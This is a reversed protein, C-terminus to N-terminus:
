TPTRQDTRGFGIREIIKYPARGGVQHLVRINIEALLGSMLALLATIYMLLMLFIMPTSQVRGLILVRFAVIAFAASGLLFFALAIRGFFYAPSSGYTNLMKVTMLDVLVKGTREFGYKSEGYRRPRHHVVVEEIRAGQAQAYSPIFRHMEGVLHLDDIYIRRFVKLTCGLDHIRLGLFRRIFFNAVTSPLTRTVPNDQRHARWGCVVDARGALIPEILKPLDHPDNQLDADLFAILEGRATAIGAAMAATQGQRGLFRIARLWRHTATLAALRDWSGDDSCDDVFIAECANQLSPLVDDIESVLLALNEAENFVPVVISVLIKQETDPAM